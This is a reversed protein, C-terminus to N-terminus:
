WIRRKNRSGRRVLSPHLSRAAGTAVTTTFRAGLTGGDGDINDCGVNTGDDWEDKILGMELGLVWDPEHQFSEARSTSAARQSSSRRASRKPEAVVLSFSRHFSAHKASM